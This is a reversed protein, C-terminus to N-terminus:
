IFFYVFLFFFFVLFSFYCNFFFNFFLPDMSETWLPPGHVLPGHKTREWPLCYNRCYFPNLYKGSEFGEWDVNGAPPTNAATVPNKCGKTLCASAPFYYVLTLIICFNYFTRTPYIFLCCITVTAYLFM